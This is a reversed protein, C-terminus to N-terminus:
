RSVIPSLNSLALKLCNLTEKKIVEQMNPNLRRQHKISPEHDDEMLIRHICVSPHIGKLYDLTYGMAKRHMRLIRLLSDVQYTSLSAHVIMPYSSNPGLFEYRLSSRLPKLEVQPAREEDYSSKTDSVL